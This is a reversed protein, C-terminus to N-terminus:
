YSNESYALLFPTFIHVFCYQKHLTFDNKESKIKPVLNHNEEVLAKQKKNLEDIEDELEFIEYRDKFFSNDYDVNDSTYYKNM